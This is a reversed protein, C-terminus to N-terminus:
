MDSALSDILNDLEDDQDGSNLEKMIHSSIISEDEAINNVHNSAPTNVHNSAPISSVDDHSDLVPSPALKIPTVTATTPLQAVSTSPQSQGDEGKVPTTKQLKRMSRLRNLEIMNIEESTKVPNQVSETPPSDKNDETTKKDKSKQSRRSYMMFIVVIVILLVIIAIIIAFKHNKFFGGSSQVDIVPLGGCMPVVPPALEPDTIIPLVQHYEPNDSSM